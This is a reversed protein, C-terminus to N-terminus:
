QPVVIAKYQKNPPINKLLLMAAIGLVIFVGNFILHGKWSLAELFGGCSCPLHKYNTMMYVIYICFLLMLGTAAILGIKRTVPFFLLAAIIIETIPLLWVIIHAVPTLLPMLAMQERSMNLDSLKSLATYLMLCVYLLAIIESIVKRPMVIIM